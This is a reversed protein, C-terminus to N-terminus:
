GGGIKGIPNIIHDFLESFNTFATHLRNSPRNGYSGYPNAALMENAFKRAGVSKLTVTTNSPDETTTITDVVFLSNALGYNEATVSVVNGIDIAKRPNDVGNILDVIHMDILKVTINVVNRGYNNYLYEAAAYFLEQPDTIDDFQAVSVIPDAPATPVM